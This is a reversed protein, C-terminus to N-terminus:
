NYLGQHNVLFSRAGKCEEVNFGSWVFSYFGDLVFVQKYGKATLQSAFLFSEDNGYVLIPASKDKPLQTTSFDAQVVHHANKLRGLNKYSRMGQVKNDYEEAVRTDYIQLNRNTELLSLTRRTDLIHYPAPHELFSDSERSSVFDEIGGLMLYVPAFGNKQLQAIARAPDGDGSAGYVLVPRGKYKDLEGIRGALEAFPLNIANRLRGVNNGQVTDMSNFQMAPRVDILVLNKESKILKASEDLTLNKYGLSTQLYNQKCPFEKDSLQTLSSMGGNLNYVHAYGKESLLKSVRRSRQSHSCYFVLTKDKYRSLTDPNKEILQINLNIANKLHGINLSTYRSTDAYEGPSRVDVLMLDPNAQLMRCLDKAYVTKYLSDFKFPLQAHAALSGLTVLLLTLKNKM